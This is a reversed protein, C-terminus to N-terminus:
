EKVFILSWNGAAHVSLIQKGPYVAGGGQTNVRLVISGSWSAYGNEFALSASGGEVGDLEMRFHEEKSDTVKIAVTWLGRSLELRATDTGKGSVEIPSVPSDLEETDVETASEVGEDICDHKILISRTTDGLRQEEDAIAISTRILDESFSIEFNNFLGAPDVRAKEEVEVRYAKMAARRILNYDKLPSPPDVQETAEIMLNLRELAKKWTYPEERDRDSGPCVELAYAEIREQATATATPEPETVVPTPDDKGAGETTWVGPTPATTAAPVTCALAMLLAALGILHGRWRTAPFRTGGQPRPNLTKAALKAWSTPRLSVHFSESGLSGCGADESTFDGTSESCLTPM